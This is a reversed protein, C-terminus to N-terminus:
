ISCRDSAAGALARMVTFERDVAHASPLLVGPPKKRLVYAAGPTALHFTPNSQGGQFQRIECEAGFGPLHENLYCLLRAEDFRHNPLVAVLTATGAAPPTAAM